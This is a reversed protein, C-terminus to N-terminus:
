PQIIPEPRVQDCLRDIISITAERIDLGIQLSTYRLKPSVPAVGDLLRWERCMVTHLACLELPDEDHDVVLLARM